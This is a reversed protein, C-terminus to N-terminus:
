PLSPGGPGWPGDPMGPIGTLIVKFDPKEDSFNALMSVNRALHPPVCRYDWRYSPSAANLIPSATKFHKGRGGLLNMM